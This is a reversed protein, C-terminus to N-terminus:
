LHIFDTPVGFFDRLRAALDAVVGAYRSDAALNVTEAEDRRHDYLERAVPNGTDTGTDTGTDDPRSRWETYRWERTRLSYGMVKGRPFQSLAAEKIEKEPNELLPVLSTGELGAPSPLHCLEVLTPYIDILEVLSDSTRGHCPCPLHRHDQRGPDPVAIILPANTDLEFNTTKGWLDHEGLHWGHDSWLVIITRDALGEVELRALLRGIQSDVFSTAAYYGHRLHAAQEPTLPGLDPIDTYGRLEAWNHLAIPPVDKPPHPNPIRSLATVDQMDWYRRPASFPLHPRRFGVALFFPPRGAQALCSLRRVAEDAVRGDIYANDPVDACETARAKAVEGKVVQSQLNEELAYKGGVENTFALTEDVSWSQRDAMARPDHFIKGICETHYGHRKFHEPLTVVEPMTSRFHTKLDWVRITDPRRGTLLSARSPNCVAQQCYARRFVTGRAALADIHPTVALPDGYCGLNTRLDDVAIFLVNYRDPDM